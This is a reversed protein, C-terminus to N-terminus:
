WVFFFFLSKFELFFFFFFASLSPLFVASKLTMIQSLDCRLLALRTIWTHMHLCMCMRIKWDFVSSLIFATGSLLFAWDTSHLVLLTQDHQVVWNRELSWGRPARPSTLCSYESEQKCRDQTCSVSQEAFLVAVTCRWYVETAKSYSPPTPGFDAVYKREGWFEITRGNHDTSIYHNNVEKNTSIKSM